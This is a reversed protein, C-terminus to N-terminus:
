GGSSEFGLLVDRLLSALRRRDDHSLARLIADERGLLAVMAGDVAVAGAETLTVLVARGDESDTLRAALGRAELIDLRHTM